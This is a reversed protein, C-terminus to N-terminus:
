LMHDRAAHFGEASRFNCSPLYRETATATPFWLLKAGTWCAVEVHRVTHIFTAEPVPLLDTDGPFVVGVDYEQLIARRVLDVALAVDVGKERPPHEPWGRHNPDRRIVRVRSDRKWAATQADNATTARWHHEPNPGGRYVRVSVMDSPHRRKRINREAIRVPHLLSSQEPPAGNGVFLERATLHVNQYDVFVAVRDSVVAPGCFFLRAL